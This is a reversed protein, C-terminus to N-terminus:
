VALVIQKYTARKLTVLRVVASQFETMNTALQPYPRMRKHATTQHVSLRAKSVFFNNICFLINVLKITGILPIRLLM